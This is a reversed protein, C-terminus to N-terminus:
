ESAHVSSISPGSANVGRAITAAAVFIRTPVAIAFTYVRPGAVSACCASEIDSTAGPRNMRPIPEPECGITSCHFLRPLACM